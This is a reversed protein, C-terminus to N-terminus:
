RCGTERFFNVLGERAHALSPPGEDAKQFFKPAGPHSLTYIYIYKGIHEYM